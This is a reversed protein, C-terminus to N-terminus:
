YRRWHVGMQFNDARVISAISHYLDTDLESALYNYHGAPGAWDAMSVAVGEFPWYGLQLVQLALPKPVFDLALLVQPKTGLLVVDERAVIEYRRLWAM